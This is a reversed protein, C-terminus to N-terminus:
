ASDELEIARSSGLVTGAGNMANLGVYPETTHVTIVTEFGQQPASGLPALEEPSAGALVQWTAVETAGNWSAYIKVRDEAGREAVVAPADAPQGSWPLRFARYSESEAPFAANFLLRGERDFESYVPESGWGVFINGNPLV